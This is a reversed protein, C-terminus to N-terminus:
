LTFIIDIITKSISEYTGDQSIQVDYKIDLKDLVSITKKFENEDKFTYKKDNSILQIKSIIDTNSNARPTVISTQTKELNNSVQAKQVVDAVQAKQYVDAVQAKMCQQKIDSDSAKESSQYFEVIHRKTHKNQEFGDYNKRKKKNREKVYMYKIENNLKSVCNITKQYSIVQSNDSFYYDRLYNRLYQNKTNFEVLINFNKLRTYEDCKLSLSLLENFDGTKRKNCTYIISDKIIEYEFSKPNHYKRMDIKLYKNNEFYIISEILQTNQNFIDLIRNLRLDNDFDKSIKIYIYNNLDRKVENRIISFNYM